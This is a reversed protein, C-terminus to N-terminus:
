TIRPPDHTPVEFTARADIRKAGDFRLKWVPKLHAPFPMSDRDVVVSSAFDAESALFTAVGPVGSCLSDEVGLAPAVLTFGLSPSVYTHIGGPINM